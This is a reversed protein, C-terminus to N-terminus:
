TPRPRGTVVEQVRLRAEDLTQKTEEPGMKALDEDLLSELKELVISASQREQPSPPPVSLLRSADALRKREEATLDTQAALEAYDHEAKEVDPHLTSSLNFLPSTLVHHVRWRRLDLEPRSAEVERTSPNRRVLIIEGPESASSGDEAGATELGDGEAEGAEGPGALGLVILPSHTNVIFQCSKFEQSLAPLLHRQWNPHMHVGIEDILVIAGGEAPDEMGAHVEYLRQLLTGAWCLLSATGQSIAEIPVEGDDTQLRIEGTKADIGGKKPPRLRIDPTVADLLSWLKALTGEAASDGQLRRHDLELVWEKLGALRTDPKISLIPLLDELRPNASGDRTKASGSSGRRTLSRLAPFGLVLWKEFLLPSLSESRVEVTGTADSQLTVTYQRTGVYLEIEGKQKGSKLLGQVFEKAEEPADRISEGCLAAAISRLLITKGVGNDGLLVNWRSNFALDLREYPGINWLKIRDLVPRGGARQDPGQSRRRREPLQQLFDLLEPYGESPQFDVTRVNHERELAGMLTRDAGRPTGVLAYHKRTQQPYLELSKLYGHIGELSTGVFLFTYRQFLTSIAQRLARNRDVFRNLDDPTLWLTPSRGAAGFLNLVFFGGDRVLPLLAETDAPGLPTVRFADSLLTDFTTTLVGVFPLKALRRHVKAGRSGRVVEEIYERVLDQPLRTTLEGSVADIRGRGLGERLRRADDATLGERHHAWEILGDLFDSWTPLGAQASLGGGAFLICEGASLAQALEAPPPEPPRPPLSLPLEAPPEGRGAAGVGAIRPVKSTLRTVVGLLLFAALGMVVVATRAWTWGLLVTLGEFVGSAEGDILVRLDPRSRGLVRELPSAALTAPLCASISRASMSDAEVVVDGTTLTLNGTAPVYRSLEVTVCEGPRAAEPFVSEIHFPEIVPGIASGQFGPGEAVVLPRTGLAIGAPVIVRVLGPGSSLVVAPREDFRVTMGEGHVDRPLFLDLTAGTSVTDPSFPLSDAPVGTQASLAAGSMLHILLLTRM